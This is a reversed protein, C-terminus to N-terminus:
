NEAVEEFEKITMVGEDLKKFSVDYTTISINKKDLEKYCIYTKNNFGKTKEEIRLYVCPLLEKDNENIYGYKGDKIVKTVGNSFSYIQDYIPEIIAKGEKNIYGVKGRKIVKAM